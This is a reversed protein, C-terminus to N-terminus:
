FLAKIDEETIEDYKYCKDIASHIIDNYEQESIIRQDKYFVSHKTAYIDMYDIRLLDLKQVQYGNLRYLDVFYPLNYPYSARFLKGELADTTFRLNYFGTIPIVKKVSNSNAVEYFVRLDVSVPGYTPKGINSIEIYQTDYIENSDLDITEYDISFHPMNAIKQIENSKSQLDNQISMLYITAISTILTGIGIIVSYSNKFFIGITNFFKGIISKTQAKM